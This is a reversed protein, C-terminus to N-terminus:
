RLSTSGAIAGVTPRPNISFNSVATISSTNHLLNSQAISIAEEPKLEKSGTLHELVQSISGYKYRLHLALFSAREVDSVSM